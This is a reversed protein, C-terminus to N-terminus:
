SILEWTVPTGREADCAARRGIVEHLFKPPLGHGPRISRINEATFVDGARVDRVLFLSRRFVRSRQEDPTPGYSVTGMAKEVARVAEVMMKFEPPELSFASDPGPDSRSLTFHKEVIRAGLAVAAAPVATGITHDSLGVAFGFAQALHPITRLNMM